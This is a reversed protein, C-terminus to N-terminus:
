GRKSHFPQASYYHLLVVVKRVGPVHSAIHMVRKAQEQHVEGLLYVIGDATVVKFAQLDIASDTFMRGRIRATIWSDRFVHKPFKAVVVKDYFRRHQPLHALRRMLEQKYYLAPVHGAVLINQHFIAVDVLCEPSSFVADKFILAHMRSSLRYDDMKQYVHHRDYVMSAGTWVPALCGNLLLIGILGAGLRWWRRM